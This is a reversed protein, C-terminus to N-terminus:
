DIRLSQEIAYCQDWIYVDFTALRDSWKPTLVNVCQVVARDIFDDFVAGRGRRPRCLPLLWTQEDLCGHVLSVTRTGASSRQRAPVTTALFRRCFSTFTDDATGGYSTPNTLPGVTEHLEFVSGPWGHTTVLPLANQSIGIHFPDVSATGSVPVTSLPM